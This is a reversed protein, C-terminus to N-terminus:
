PAVEKILYPGSAASLLETGYISGAGPATRQEWSKHPVNKGGLARHLCFPRLLGGILFHWHQKRRPIGETRYQIRHVAISTHAASATETASSCSHPNTQELMRMMYLKQQIFMCQHMLFRCKEHTVAAQEPM